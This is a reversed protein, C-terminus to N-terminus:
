RMSSSVKKAMACAAGLRGTSSNGWQNVRDRPVVGAAHLVLNSCDESSQLVLQANASFADSRFQLAKLVLDVVAIQHLM